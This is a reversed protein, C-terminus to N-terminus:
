LWKEYEFKLVELGTKEKVEKELEPDLESGHSFVIHKSIYYKELNNALEDIELAHM